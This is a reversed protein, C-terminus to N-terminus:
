RLIHSTCVEAGSTLDFSVKTFIKPRVFFFGVLQRLQSKRRSSQVENNAVNGNMDGEMEHDKQRRMKGRRGRGGARHIQGNSGKCGMGQVGERTKKETAIRWVMWHRQLMHIADILNKVFQLRLVGIVSTM